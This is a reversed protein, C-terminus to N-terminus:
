DSKNKLSLLEHTFGSKSFLIYYEERKEKKPFKKAKEQLGQLVSLGVKKKSWKCKGFVIEKEGLELIDIKTNKDWWRGVELLPFPIEKEILDLEILKRIYASSGATSLALHSAIKSLKTNGLSISHLITFYRSIENVEEQLLFKPESYLCHNRDLFFKKINELSLYKEQISLIYKPIEGILSYMEILEHHTKRLFFEKYYPFSVKISFCREM